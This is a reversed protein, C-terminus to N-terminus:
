ALDKLEGKIYIWEMLSVKNLIQSLVTVLILRIPLGLNRKNYSRQSVKKKRMKVFHVSRHKCNCLSM